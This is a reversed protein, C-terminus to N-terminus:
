HFNDKELPFLGIRAIRTFNEMECKKHTEGKDEQM